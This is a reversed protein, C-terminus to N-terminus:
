ETVIQFFLSYRIIMDNFNIQFIPSICGKTIRIRQKSVDVRLHNIVPHIIYKKIFNLMHRLKLIHKIAVKLYLIGIYIDCSAVGPEQGRVYYCLKSTSAILNM